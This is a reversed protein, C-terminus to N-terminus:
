RYPPLVEEFARFIQRAGSLRSKIKKQDSSAVAREIESVLLRSVARTATEFVKRSGQIRAEVMDPEEGNKPKPHAVRQAESIARRFTDAQQPDTRKITRALVEMDGWVQDWHVPNLNLIFATRRYTEAAPHLKEPPVIHAQVNFALLSIWAAAISLLTCAVTLLPRFPFNKRSM